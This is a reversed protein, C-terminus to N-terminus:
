ELQIVWIIKWMKMKSYKHCIFLQIMQFTLAFAEPFLELRWGSLLTLNWHLLYIPQAHWVQLHVHAIARHTIYIVFWPEGFNEIHAIAMTFVIDEWQFFSRDAFIFDDNEWWQDALMWFVLLTVTKWDTYIPQAHLVGSLALFNTCFKDSFRFHLSWNPSKPM